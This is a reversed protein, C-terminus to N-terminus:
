AGAFLSFRRALAERLRPTRTPERRAVVADDRRALQEAVRWGAAVAFAISRKDDIAALTAVRAKRAAWGRLHLVKCRRAVLRSAARHRDLQLVFNM